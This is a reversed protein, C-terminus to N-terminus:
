LKGTFRIRPAGANQRRGKRARNVARVVRWAYRMHHALVVDSRGFTGEVRVVYRSGSLWLLLVLLGTLAPYLSGLELVVQMIPDGRPPFFLGSFWVVLAGYFLDLAVRYAYATRPLRPGIKVSKIEALPISRRGFVAERDTVRVVKDSFYVEGAM